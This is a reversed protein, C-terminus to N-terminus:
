WLNNLEEIIEKAMEDTYYKRYEEKILDLTYEDNEIDNFNIKDTNFPYRYISWNWIYYRYKEQIKEAIKKYYAVLNGSYHNIESLTVQKLEDNRKKYLVYCYYINNDLMVEFTLKYENDERLVIIIGYFKRNHTGHIYYSNIRDKSWWSESFLDKALYPKIEGKTGMKLDLQKKLDEQLDYWFKYQIERKAEEAAEKIIFATKLNDKEKLLLKKLDMIMRRSYSQKTIKLVLNKYMRLTERIFPSLVAEKICDDLWSVIDEKYSLVILKDVLEGRSDNEIEKDFVTLLIVFYNSINKGIMYNSYKKLQDISVEAEIKNEIVLFIEKLDCIIDIRGNPITYERKVEAKELSDKFINECNNNVKKYIHKLFLKLFVNNHGHFGEPNLLEFIFASHLNVEDYDNRLISFINFQNEKIQESYKDIIAKSIELLQNSSYNNAM